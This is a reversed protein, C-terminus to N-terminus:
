IIKIDVNISRLKDILKEYGRLIVEAHNIITFNQAVVGAIILSFGARLDAAYVEKGILDSPFVLLTNNKLYVLGNMSLLELVESFRNPYINDKILSIAKTKLLVVVMLQQLDTPFMPYNDAIIKM